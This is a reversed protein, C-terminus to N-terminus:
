EADRANDLAKIEFDEGCEPSCFLKDDLAPVGYFLFEKGCNECKVIKQQLIM